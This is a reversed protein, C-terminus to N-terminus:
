RYRGFSVQRKAIFRKRNKSPAGIEGLSAHLVAVIVRIRNVKLGISTLRM